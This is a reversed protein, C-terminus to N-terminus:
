GTKEIVKCQKKLLEASIFEIPHKVEIKKGSLISGKIIGLKCLPCDTLALESICAINQAKQSSLINSIKFNDISFLGAMGCCKEAEKLPQLNIASNEILKLTEEYCDLHCPKHYTAKLNETKPISINEKVLFENIHLAKNVIAKAIEDDLIEAYLRFAKLCSACDFLLYDIEEPIASLNKKAFKKFNEIDGTHYSAITCCEFNKPITYKIGNADLIIKMACLTSDNFYTNICGPFIAVNLNSKQPSSIKKYKTTPKLFQYLIKGAKSFNLIPFFQYLKILSALKLFPKSYTIRLAIKELINAHKFTQINAAVMIKEPDIGSPCFDKCANCHLCKDLNTRIKKNFKLHGKLVGMLLSFFGRSITTENGTIEYIPCVSQCLGCRSCKYIEDEFNKFPKM